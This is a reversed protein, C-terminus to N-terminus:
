PWWYRRGCDGCQFRWRPTKDREHLSGEYKVPRHGLVACLARMLGDRVKWTWSAARLM